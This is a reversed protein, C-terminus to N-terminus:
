PPCAVGASTSGLPDVVYATAPGKVYITVSAMPNGPGTGPVGMTRVVRVTIGSPFPGAVFGSVNDRVYINMNAPAYCDSSATLTYYGRNGALARNIVPLSCWRKQAHAVKVAGQVTATADIEDLGPGGLGVYTFTVHGQADSTATGSIGANPGSSVLITVSVGPVPQTNGSVYRTVTATVTHPTGVLNVAVSPTLTLNGIPAQCLLDAVEPSGPPGWGHALELRLVKILAATGPGTYNYGPWDYDFGCYLIMADPAGILSGVKTYMHAYGSRNYTNVGRMLACWVSSVTNENVVNLDGVADTGSVMAATDIYYPSAPNASGFANDEVITASGGTNGTQGPSFREFYAGLPNLWSYAFNGSTCSDSDWIILKGGYLRLWDILANNCAPYSNVNCYEFLFVTDYQALQSASNINAPNAQTMNFGPYDAPNLYGAGSSQFSPIVLVNQSTSHSGGFAVSVVMVLLVMALLISKKM